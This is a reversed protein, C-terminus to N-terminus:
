TSPSRCRIASAPCQASCYSTAVGRSLPRGDIHIPLIATEFERRIAECGEVFLGLQSPLNEDGGVFNRAVTDVVVLEPWALGREELGTSVANCWKEVAREEHLAVSEPVFLLSPLTRVRNAVQWAAVRARVGSVGEAAVYIITKGDVALQCAWTLAIFSKYSGGPGYLVTLERAALWGPILWEV